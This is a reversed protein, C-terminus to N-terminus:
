LGFIYVRFILILNIQFDKGIPLKSLSTESRKSGTEPHQSSSFPAKGPM